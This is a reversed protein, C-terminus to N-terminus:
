RNRMRELYRVYKNSGVQRPNFPWAERTWRRGHPWGSAKLHAAMAADKNGQAKGAM